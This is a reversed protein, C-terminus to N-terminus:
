KTKDAEENDVEADLDFCRKSLAQKFLLKLKRESNKIYEDAEEKTSFILPKRPGWYEDGIMEMEDLMKIGEKNHQHREYGVGDPM